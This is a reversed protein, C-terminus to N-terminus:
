RKLHTASQSLSPANGTNPYRQIYSLTYFPLPQPKERSLSHDFSQSRIGYRCAYWLTPGKALVEIGRWLIRRMAMLRRRTLSLSPCNGAIGPLCTSFVTSFAKLPATKMWSSIDYSFCFFTVDKRRRRGNRSLRDAVAYIYKLLPYAVKM